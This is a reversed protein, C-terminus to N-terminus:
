MKSTRMPMLLMIQKDTNKENNESSFLTASIPTNLKMVINETEIHNLIDSLYNANFGITISEQNYNVALSEKAKTANESDETKIVM